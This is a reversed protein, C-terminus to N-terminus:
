GSFRNPTSAFCCPTRSYGGIWCFSGDKALGNQCCGTCEFVEDFCTANCLFGQVGVPAPAETPPRTISLSFPQSPLSAAANFTTFTGTLQNCCRAENYAGGWCGTGDTAKGTSCCSSCLYKEDDFCSPDRYSGCTYTCVFVCICAHMCAHRCAHMCTHM